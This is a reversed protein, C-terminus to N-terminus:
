AGRVAGADERGAVAGIVPRQAQEQASHAADARREVDNGGRETHAAGAHLEAAHRQQHPEVEDGAAQDKDGDARKSRRLDHQEDVAVKAPMEEIGLGAARRNQPHMKEPDEAVRLDVDEDQGSKSEGVLDNGDERAFGNEAIRRHHCSGDGDAKDAQADPRVVHECDAHAWPWIREESKGGHHDRHGRSDLDEVPQCCKPAAVDLEGGM